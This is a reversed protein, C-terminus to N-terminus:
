RTIRPKWARRRSISPSSGFGHLRALPRESVLLVPHVVFKPRVCFRPAMERLDIAVTDEAAAFAAPTWYAFEMTAFPRFAGPQLANTDVAEVPLRREAPAAPLLSSREPRFQHASASPSHSPGCSYQLRLQRSASDIRQRSPTCWGPTRLPALPHRASARCRNRWVLSRATTARASKCRSTARM